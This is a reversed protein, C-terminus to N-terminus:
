WKRLLAYYFGDVGGPQPFLQSGVTCERADAINLPLSHADPHKALFAELQRSNEMQLESCTSYLLHGGQMLLPWAAALLAAQRSVLSTLEEPTRLIKIDPHRRIVGTASCPVDLLIADFVKDTSYPERTIDACQVTAVLGCRQLNEQLRPLRKNDNDLCVVQLDPVAEMLACTKGGPAACVDLVQQGSQVPLLLPLLQSAEDQVSVVGQAFGPLNTVDTPTNLHIATPTLQGAHAALGSNDLQALYETRTCRSLNVRLTMPARQNNAELIDRYDAPWDQKLRDLLWQPHSYKCVYDLEDAQLLTAHTRQAERLVANIVGKAWLKNLSEVTAVTENVAAHSPTRMFFLEYLGLLILCHIDRDKKRLPKDLLRQAWGDLKHYWRCVGFCYEQVLATNIGSSSNLEKSLLSALSGQQDLLCGIIRCYLLRENPKTM